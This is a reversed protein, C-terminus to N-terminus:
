PTHSGAPAAGPTKIKGRGKGGGRRRRERPDYRPNPAPMQAGVRERWAHLLARLEAAREPDAAALDHREGPDAALDYLEVRMDEYFEVLRYRGARVAGYPTAGGPHYHPYHWFLPPRAESPEEGRLLGVISSGDVRAEGRPDDAIGAAELITPFLDNTIVPEDCVAGARAVGPWRVLLPVRVGGEYASGKGARLPANTTSGIRGGNDGTLIVLTRDALRTRDLKKLIAGLAEDVSEIMAAYRPNRHRPQTRAIRERYRAVKERKGQLPTHVAYHALYVFFPVDRHEEIFRCTELAERDTLYEGEPGDALTPIRYPSFYSPPQGRHCGGANRDFGQHEPWYREEGLHWKGVHCTAYGAARLAEAITTEELPLHQTWDPVKLKAHPRVHGKIWDTLHLRAPYKGTMAAARTPSCVTCAAYASTFRTGERALRDINPTEYLDSGLVSADTWGWDDVMIFIVNPPRSSGEQFAAAGAAPSGFWAALAAACTALRFSTHPQM